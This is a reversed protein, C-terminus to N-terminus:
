KLAAQKLKKSLKKKLKKEKKAEEVISNKFESLEIITKRLKSAEKEFDSAQEQNVKKQSRLAVSLTNKAKAHDENEQKLVKLDECTKIHKAEIHKKESLIRVNENSTAQNKSKHFKLEKELEDVKLIAAKLKNESLLFDELKVTPHQPSSPQEASPKPYLAESEGWRTVFRKKMKIDLSFPTEHFSFNLGTNKVLWM